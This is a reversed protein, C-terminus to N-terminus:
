ATYIKVKGKGLEDDNIAVNKVNKINVGRLFPEVVVVKANKPMDILASILEEVTM